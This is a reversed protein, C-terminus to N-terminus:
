LEGWMDELERQYLQHQLDLITDRMERMIQQQQEAIKRFREAIESQEIARECYNNM